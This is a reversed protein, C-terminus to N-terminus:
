VGRFHSRLSVLHTLPADCYLNLSVNKNYNISAGNGESELLLTNM